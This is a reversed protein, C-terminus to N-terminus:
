GRWSLHIVGASQLLEHVAEPPFPDRSRHRWRLECEISKEQAGPSASVSWSHIQLPAAQLRTRLGAESLIGENLTVTLKGSHQHHM